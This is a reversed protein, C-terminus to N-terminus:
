PQVLNYLTRCPHVHDHLITCLQVQNYLTTSPQVFNYMTEEERERGGERERGRVNLFPKCASHGMIATFVGGGLVGGGNSFRKPHM